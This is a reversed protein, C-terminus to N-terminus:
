GCSRTSRIARASISSSTPAWAGLWRSGSPCRTSASSRPPAASSLAPRPASALLGRPSSPSSTASASAAANPGASGLKEIVGVPEHGVTLGKAVPYEGKLIHVDTGCITTTTVRILADLPGVDPIPKEDLVIRGPEVFIAAKMKPM